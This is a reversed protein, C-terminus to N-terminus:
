LAYVSQQRSVYLKDSNFDGFAMPLGDVKEMGLDIRQLGSDTFFPKNPNFLKSASSIAIFSCILFCAPFPIM